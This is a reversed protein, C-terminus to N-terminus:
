TQPPYQDVLLPPLVGCRRRLPWASDGDGGVWGWVAASSQVGGGLGLVEQWWSSLGCQACRREAGKETITVLRVVGGSSGDRAMALELATAVLDEAEERTM